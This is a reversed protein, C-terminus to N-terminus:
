DQHYFTLEPIREITEQGRFDVQLLSTFESMLQKSVGPTYM